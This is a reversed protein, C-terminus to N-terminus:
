QIWIFTFFYISSDISYTHFILYIYIQMPSKLHNPINIKIHFTEHIEIIKSLILYVDCKFCVVNAFLSTYSQTCFMYLATFISMFYPICLYPESFSKPLVNYIFILCPVYWIYPFGDNTNPGEWDKSFQILQWIWTSSHRGGLQSSREM